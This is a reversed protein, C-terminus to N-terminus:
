KKTLAELIKANAEAQSMQGADVKAILDAILKNTKTMDVQNAELLLELQTITIQNSSNANINQLLAKIEALIPTPDKYYTKILDELDKVTLSNGPKGSNEVLVDIKDGIKSMIDIMSNSTTQYGKFIEKLDNISTTNNKVANILEDHNKKNDASVKAYFNDLLNTIQDITIFGDMKGSIEALLQNTNLTGADYKAILQAILNELNSPQGSSNTNNEIKTLKDIMAKLANNTETMDVKNEKILKELQELTINSSTNLGLTKLLETINNLAETPDKYIEKIMNKLEEITLPKNSEGNKILTNILTEINKLSTNVENSNSSFSALMAKLEQLANTNNGVGINISELKDLINQFIKQNAEITKDSFKDLAENLADVTVLNDMKKLIQALLEQESISGKEYSEILKALLTEMNANSNKGININVENLKAVVDKLLNNTEGMDVKNDNLIKELQALTINSSTNVGIAKLLETINNLADTPDKYVEKLMNKLDEITLPKSSEGNQILTNILSKIDSITTNMESSNSSFAALMAKLEQISSSMNGTSFDISTLKDLIANFQKEFAVMQKDGFKDLIKTLADITVLNDMKALIQKLLESSDINGKEYSAILKSILAELNATSNQDVSNNIETLKTMMQALISTIDSNDTKNDALLKAIQELTIAGSTNGGILELLATINALAETPDKYIEKIMAKLEDITIPKNGENNKILTEVLSVLSSINTNMESNSTSFAAILTKLEQLATNNSGIGLDIKDLKALLEKFMKENAAIQKEGFKDLIDSLGEMTVLTDMKKLIQALLDQTNVDGKEFSAILQAVLAELNSNNNSGVTTNLKALAELIAQLSTNTETMDTKNAEILKQLEEITIGKSASIGLKELLDTITKLAETPDKYNEKILKELDEVTLNKGNEANEKIITDFKEFIKNLAESLVITNADYKSVLEKLIDMIGANGAGLGKIADLIKTLFEELNKDKEESNKNYSDALNKLVELTSLGIEKLDELTKNMAKLLEEITIKGANFDKILQDLSKATSQSSENLKDLQASILAIQEILKANFEASSLEGNKFAELLAKISASISQNGNTVNVNMEELKSLILVLLDSVAKMDVKVDVNTIITNEFEIDKSCSTMSLPGGLVSALMAAGIAWQKIPDLTREFLSKTPIKDLENAVVEPSHMAVLKLREEATLKKANKPKEEKVFGYDFTKQDVYTFKAIQQRKEKESKPQKTAMLKEIDLKEVAKPPEEKIFNYDFAKKDIYVSGAKPKQELKAQKNSDEIVEYLIKPTTKNKNDHKNHKNKKGEFSLGNYNTNSLNLAMKDGELKKLSYSSFPADNKFNRM